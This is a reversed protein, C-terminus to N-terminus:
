ADRHWDRGRCVESEDLRLGSGSGGAWAAGDPTMGDSQVSRWQDGSSTSGRRREWTGSGEGRRTKGEGRSRRTKGEGDGDTAMNLRSPIPLRRADAIGGGLARGVWAWAMPWALSASMAAPRGCSSVSSPHIFLPSCSLAPFM